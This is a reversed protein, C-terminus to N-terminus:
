FELLGLSLSQLGASCTPRDEFFKLFSGAEARSVTFGIGPSVISWEVGWYAEWM